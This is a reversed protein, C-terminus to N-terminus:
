KKFLDFITGFLGGVIDTIMKLFGDAKFVTLLVLALAIAAIIGVIYEATVMGRERFSPRAPTEVIDSPELLHTTPDTVSM